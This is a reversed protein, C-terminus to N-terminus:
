FLAILLLALILATSVGIALGLKFGLWLNADILPRKKSKEELLQVHLQANRDERNLLMKEMTGLQEQQEGIIQEMDSVKMSKKNM